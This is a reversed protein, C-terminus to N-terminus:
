CFNSLNSWMLILSKKKLLLPCWLYSYWVSSLTLSTNTIDLFSLHCICPIIAFRCSFSLFYYFYQWLIHIPLERFPSEQEPDPLSLAPPCCYLSGRHPSGLLWAAKIMRLLGKYGVRQGTRQPGRSPLWTLISGGWPASPFVSGWPPLAAQRLDWSRATHHLCSQGYTSM